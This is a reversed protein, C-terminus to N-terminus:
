PSLLCSMFSLRRDNVITALAVTAVIPNDPTIGANAAPDIDDILDRPEKLTPTVCAGGQYEFSGAVPLHVDPTPTEAPIAM